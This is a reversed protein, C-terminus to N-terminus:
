NQRTFKLDVRDLPKENTNSGLARVDIRSPDIGNELLYARVELARSLSLQRADSDNGNGDAFSMIQLRADPKKNLFSVIEGKLTDRQDTQLATLRPMYEMSIVPVPQGAPALAAMQFPKTSTAKGGSMTAEIDATSPEIMHNNLAQDIMREGPTPKKIELDKDPDTPLAFPDLSAKEVKESPVAPMSPRSKPVYKPAVPAPKMPAAALEVTLDAKKPAPKKAPASDQLPFNVTDAPTAAVLQVSPKKPPLPAKALTKKAPAPAKVKPVPAHPSNLLTHSDSYDPRASAVKEEPAIMRQRTVVESNKVPFELVEEAKLTTLTPAQPPVIARKLPSVALPRAKPAASGFMAPPEYGQLDQLVSRDIEIQNRPQDAASVTSVSSLLLVLASVFRRCTM